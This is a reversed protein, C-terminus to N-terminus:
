KETLWLVDYSGIFNQYQLTFEDQTLLNKVEKNIGIFWSSYVTEYPSFNAIIWINKGSKDTKKYVLLHANGSDIFELDNHDAFAPIEKRLAIMNKLSEFVSKQAPNQDLNEAVQWNMLPRHLWRNDHKKDEENQYDYFNTSAIEDGSYIMPLGGLSLIIAHQLNIRKLALDIQYDDNKEM